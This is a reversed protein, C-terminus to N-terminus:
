KKGLVKRSLLHNVFTTVVVFPAISGRYGGRHSFSKSRCYAYECIKYAGILWFLNVIAESMAIYRPVNDARYNVFNLWGVAGFLILFPLLGYSAYIIARQDKDLFGIGVMALAIAAIVPIPPNHFYGGDFILSIAEPHYGTPNHIPLSGGTVAGTFGQSALGNLLFLFGVICSATIWVRTEATIGGRLKEQYLKEKQKEKSPILAHVFITRWAWFGYRVSPWWDNRTTVLYYVTAIIMFPAFVEKILTAVGIAVAAAVHRRM